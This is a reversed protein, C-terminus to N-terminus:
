RASRVSHALGLAHGIEHLAVSVFDIGSPPLDV